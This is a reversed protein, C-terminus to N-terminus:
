ITKLKNIIDLNDDETKGIISYQNKQREINKQHKMKYISTIECPTMDLIQFISMLFHLIDIAEIKANEKNLVTEFLKGGTKYEEVWWKTLCCKELERAEDNVHYAYGFLWELKNPDNITAKGVICNLDQQMRYILDLSDEAIEIQDNM